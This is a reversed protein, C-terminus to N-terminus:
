EKKPKWTRTLVIYVGGDDESDVVNVTTMEGVKLGQKYAREARKEDKTQVVNGDAEPIYYCTGIKM